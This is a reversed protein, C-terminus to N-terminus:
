DPVTNLTGNVVAGDFSTATSHLRGVSSLSNSSSSSQGSSPRGHGQGHGQGGHQRHHRHQSHRRRRHRGNCTSTTAVTRGGPDTSRRVGGLTVPFYEDVLSVCRCRGGSTTTTSAFLDSGSGPPVDAPSSPTSAASDPSLLTGDYFSAAPVDLRPGSYRRSSGHTTSASSTLGNVVKHSGNTMCGGGNREATHDAVPTPPPPARDLELGNPMSTSVPLPRSRHRSQRGSVAFQGHGAAAFSVERRSAVALPASDSSLSSRDDGYKSADYMVRTCTRCYRLGASFCM